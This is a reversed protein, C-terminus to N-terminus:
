KELVVPEKKVGHDGGVTFGKVLKKGKVKDKEYALRLDYTGAALPAKDGAWFELAPRIEEMDAGAKYVSVRTDGSVDKGDLTAAIKVYQMPYNLAVEAKWLKGAAVPVGRIWGSAKCLPGEDYLVRLDWTGPAVPIDNNAWAEVEPRGEEPDAGPKWVQIRTFDNVGATGEFTKVKVLGKAKDDAEKDIVKAFAEKIAGTLPLDVKALDTAREAPPPVATVAPEVAKSSPPPASEKKGCGGAAVAMVLLSSGVGLWLRTMAKRREGM